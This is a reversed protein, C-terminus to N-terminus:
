GKRSRLGFEGKKKLERAALDYILVTQQFAM